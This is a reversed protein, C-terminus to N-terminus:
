LAQATKQSVCDAHDPVSCQCCRRDCKSSLVSVSRLGGALKFTGQPLSFLNQNLTRM